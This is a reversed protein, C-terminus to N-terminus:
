RFDRPLGLRGLLTRLDEPFPAEILCRPEGKTLELALSAAHLAHRPHLECPPSRHLPEGILPHGLAALHLRVQHQRGTCLEVKVLTAPVESSAPNTALPCVVSQAPKASPDSPSVVAPFTKGTRADRILGLPLNVERERAPMHGHVIALYHKTQEIKLCDSFRAVLTRKLTFCNLGSTLLDLQHVAWIPRHLAESLLTEISRRPEPEGFIHHAPGSSLYGPPKDVILLGDRKFVIRRLIDVPAPRFNGM